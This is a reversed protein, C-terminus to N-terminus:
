RIGVIAGVAIILIASLVVGVVICVTYIFGTHLPFLDFLAHVIRSGM